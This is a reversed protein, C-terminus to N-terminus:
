LLDGPPSCPPSSARKAEGIWAAAGTKGAGGGKGKERKETGGARDKLIRKTGCGEPRANVRTEGSFAPGSLLVEVFKMQPTM